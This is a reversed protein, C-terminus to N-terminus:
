LIKPFGFDAIANIMCFISMVRIKYIVDFHLSFIILFLTGTKKKQQIFNFTETYLILLIFFFLLLIIFNHYSYGLNLIYSKNNNM